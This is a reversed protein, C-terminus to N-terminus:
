LVEEFLKVAEKHYERDRKRKDCLYKKYGKSDKAMETMIPKLVPKGRSLDKYYDQESKPFPKMYNM